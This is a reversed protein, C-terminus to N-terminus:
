ARAKRRELFLQVVVASVGMAMLYPTVRDAGGQILAYAVIPTFFMLALLIRMHLVTVGILSKVCDEYASGVSFAAIKKALGRNRCM